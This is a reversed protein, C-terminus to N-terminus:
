VSYQPTQNTQISSTSYLFIAYFSPLPSRAYANGTHDDLPTKYLPLLLIEEDKRRKWSARIKQVSPKCKSM